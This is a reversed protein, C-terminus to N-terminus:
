LTNIKKLMRNLVMDKSFHKLVHTRASSGMAKMRDYQSTLEDLQRIVEKSYQCFFLGADTAKFTSNIESDKHGIIISPKASAMMGLVKSPMVTDLLDPKQFLLHIDTSCLLDPLQNYPVPPYYTVN